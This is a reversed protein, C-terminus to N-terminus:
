MIVIRVVYGVGHDTALKVSELVFVSFLQLGNVINTDAAIM